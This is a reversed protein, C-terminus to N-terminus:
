VEEQQLHAESRCQFRSSDMWSARLRAPEQLPGGEFHYFRRCGGECGLSAVVQHLEQHSPVPSLLLLSDVCCPAEHVPRVGAPRRNRVSTSPRILAGCVSLEATDLHFCRRRTACWLFDTKEPNNRMWEPRIYHTPRLYQSTFRLFSRLAFFSYYALFLNRDLAVAMTAM